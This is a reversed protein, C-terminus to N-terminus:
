ANGLRATSAARRTNINEAKRSKDALAESVESVADAGDDADDDDDELVTTELARRGRLRRSAM